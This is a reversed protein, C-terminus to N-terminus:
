RTYRVSVIARTGGIQREMMEYNTALSAGRGTADSGKGEPEDAPPKDKTWSAAFTVTVVGVKAPDGKLEAVASNAYGTVLFEDTRKLDIPWGKVLAAKGAPVLFTPRAPKGKPDKLTTFAFAHLGDITLTAAAEYPSNNILRVAYVEGRKIPVYALGEKVEPRRPKYGTAEKVWIEVAYFCGKEPTIRETDLRVAPEELVKILKKEREEETADVPLVVSTGSARAVDDVGFVGRPKIELVIRTEQLLQVSLLFMPRSSKRDVGVQYAGKVKYGAKIDITVGVKILEERLVQCLGPGANSPTADRSAFPELAVAGAERSKLFGSIEKAVERLEVRANEAAVAPLAGSLVILGVVLLRRWIYNESM